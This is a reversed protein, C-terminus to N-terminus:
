HLLLNPLIGRASVNDLLNKMRKGKASHAPVKRLLNKLSGRQNQRESIMSKLHRIISMDEVRFLCLFIEQSFCISFFSLPAKSLNKVHQRFLAIIYWAQVQTWSMMCFVGHSTLFNCHTQFSRHSVSMTVWKVQESSQHWLSVSTRKVTHILYEIFETKDATM